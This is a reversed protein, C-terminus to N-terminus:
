WDRAEPTARGGRLAAVLAVLALVVAVGGLALAINARSDSDAETPTAAVEAATTPSSPAVTTTVADSAAPAVSTPTAGAAAATVDVSHTDTGGSALTSTVRFRLSGPQGVPELEFGWEEFAGPALSGGSWTITTASREATWGSPQRTAAGFEAGAPAAIRIQTVASRAENASLLTLFVPRGTPITSPSIEEHAAAPVATAVVAAMALAAAFLPKHM